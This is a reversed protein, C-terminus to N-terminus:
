KQQERSRHIMLARRGWTYVYDLGSIVTTALVGYVLGNIVIAPLTNFAANFIVLLVLLIQMLTNFKSIITPEAKFREFLNNYLVGGTVIVLDRVVVAVVLWVPILGLWALSIYSCIQLLKDALPDLIGGLRTKWDFRRALYGDFADSFGAVAFLVLATGFDQQLLLWVIPLVLLIRFATIINPIDRAKM